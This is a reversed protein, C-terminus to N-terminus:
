LAIKETDFLSKNEYPQYKSYMLYYIYIVIFITLAKTKLDDFLTSGIFMLVLKLLMVVIGWYWVSDRYENYLTGYNMRLSPNNLNTRRKYLTYFLFGPVIVAYVLLSPIVM